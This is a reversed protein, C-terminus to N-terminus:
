VKVSEVLNMFCNLLEQQEEATDQFRFMVKKGNEIVFLSLGSHYPLYETKEFTWIEGINHIKLDYDAFEKIVKYTEGKKLNSIDSM